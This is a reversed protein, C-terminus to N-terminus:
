NLFYILRQPARPIQFASLPNSPRSTIISRSTVSTFHWVVSLSTWLLLVNHTLCTSCEGNVVPSLDQYDIMTMIVPDADWSFISDNTRIWFVLNWEQKGIDICFTCFIYRCGIGVSRVHKMRHSLWKRYALCIKLSVYPYQWLLVNCPGVLLNLGILVIVPHM